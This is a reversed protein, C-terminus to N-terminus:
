KTYKASSYRRDATPKPRHATCTHPPTDWSPAQIDVCSGARPPPRGGAPVYVSRSQVQEFRKRTDRCKTLNQHFGPVKGPFILVSAVVARQTHQCKKGGRHRHITSWASSDTGRGSPPPPPPPAPGSAAPPSRPSRPPSPLARRLPPGPPHSPM